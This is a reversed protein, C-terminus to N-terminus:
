TCTPTKSGRLDGENTWKGTTIYTWCDMLIFVPGWFAVFVMLVILAVIGLPIDILKM